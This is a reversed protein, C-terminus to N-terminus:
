KSVVDHAGVGQVMSGNGAASGQEKRARRVLIYFYSSFGSLIMFPMSMMFLISWMYGSVMDGRSKDHNSLAVKCTPCADAVATLFLCLALAFIGPLLAKTLRNLLMRCNM